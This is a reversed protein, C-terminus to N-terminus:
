SSIHIIADSSWVSMYMDLLQLSHYATGYLIRSNAHANRIILPSLDGNTYLKISFSPVNFKTYSFLFSNLKLFALSSTIVNGTAIYFIFTYKPFDFADCIKQFSTLQFSNYSFDRAISHSFVINIYVCLTSINLQFAFVYM